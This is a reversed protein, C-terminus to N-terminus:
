ISYKHGLPKGGFNAMKQNYAFNYADSKFYPALQPLDLMRKFFAALKPCSPLMPPKEFFRAYDEHEDVMEFVIFDAILPQQCSFFPTNHLALWSELKAFMMKASELHALKKEEWIDKPGYVLKLLDNRLDLIQTLTQENRTMAEEDAGVFGHKRGIFFYIALSQSILKDDVFLYPLTVFPNKKLLDPRTAVTWESADWVTVPDAKLELHRDEFPVDAYTLMMRAPAALGRLNWYGLLYKVM